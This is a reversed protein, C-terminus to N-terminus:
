VVPTGAPTPGDAEYWKQIRAAVNTMYEMAEASNRASYYHFEGSPDTTKVGPVTTVEALCEAITIPHIRTRSDQEVKRYPKGRAFAYALFWARSCRSRTRLKERVQSIDLQTGDHWTVRPDKIGERWSDRLFRRMDKLERAKAALEIVSERIREKRFEPPIVPTVAPPVEPIVAPSIRVWAPEESTGILKAIGDRLKNFFTKNVEM